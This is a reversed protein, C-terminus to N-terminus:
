ADYNTVIAKSVMVQAFLTLIIIIFNLWISSYLFFTFYVCVSNVQDDSLYTPLGGCFVKFPGDEVLTSVVGPIHRVQLDSSSLLSISYVNTNSNITCVLNLSNLSSLMIALITCAIILAIKSFM